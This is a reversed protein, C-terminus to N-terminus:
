PWRKTASGPGVGLGQLIIIKKEGSFPPRLYQGCPHIFLLFHIDCFISKYVSYLVFTGGGMKFIRSIILDLECNKKAMKSRRSIAM